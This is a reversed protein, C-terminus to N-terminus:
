FCWEQWNFTKWCLDARDSQKKFSDTLFSQNSILSAKQKKTM